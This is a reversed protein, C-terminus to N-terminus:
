LGFEDTLNRKKPQEIEETTDDEYIVKKIRKGNSELRHEIQEEQPENRLTMPRQGPPAKSMIEDLQAAAGDSMGALPDGLMIETDGTVPNVVQTAQLRPKGEKQIRARAIIEELSAGKQVTM